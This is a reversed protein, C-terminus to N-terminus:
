AVPQEPPLPTCRAGEVVMRMVANHALDTVRGVTGVVRARGGDEAEVVIEISWGPTIEYRRFPRPM